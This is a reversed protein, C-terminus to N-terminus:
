YATTRFVPQFLSAARACATLPCAACRADETELCTQRGLAFFYGDVAAVSRESERVLSGIADFSASRIADEEPADVWQRAVLREHLNPDLVEVCGTRLMARMLHYDVVPPIHDQDGPKLFREPRNSLIIALLNAKKLYPDEAYGPLTSLHSLLRAVPTESANCDALLEAYGGPWRARMARAHAVQLGASLGPNPLPCAGDDATCIQVFLDEENAMRELSLASPDTAAARAFAAWIFDSGKRRVGDLMAYMPKTWGTKADALWFGFQHFTSICLMDLALPHCEPLHPPQAFNFASQSAQTRLANAIRRVQEANVRARPGMHAAVAALLPAAGPGGLVQQAQAQATDVRHTGLVHAALFGGCFADGAGTTDVVRATPAPIVQRERGQWLAVGAAGQTVCVTTSAGHVNDGIRAFEAANCFFLDVATVLARVGEVDDEVMASFTGASITGAFGRARLAAVWRRQPAATPGIAAIHIHQAALWPAPLDDPSLRAELGHSFRTYTAHEDADYDLVFTPLAGDDTSLGGRHLGGPGFVRAVEHPLVPPVRAVLGVSAGAACAAMASIFAAGGITETTVGMRTVRDLSPTGVFVLAPVMARIRPPLPADIYRAPATDTTATARPRSLRTACDGDIRQTPFRVTRWAYMSLVSRQSRM